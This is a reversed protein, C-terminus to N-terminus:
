KKGSGRFKIVEAVLQNSAKKPDDGAIIAAQEAPGSDGTPEQSAGGEQTDPAVAKALSPIHRGLVDRTKNLFDAIYGDRGDDPIGETQIRDLIEEVMDKGYIDNYPGSLSSLDSDFGTKIKDALSTRNYSSVGDHFGTILKFLIERTENNDERIREFENSIFDFVPSLKEDFIRCVENYIEDDPSHM